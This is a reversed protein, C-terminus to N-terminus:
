RVAEGEARARARARNKANLAKVHEPDRERWRRTRERNQALRAERQEATEGIGLEHLEHDIEKIRRTLEAREVGLRMVQRLDTIKV